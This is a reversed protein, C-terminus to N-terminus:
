MGGGDELDFFLGHLLGAHICTALLPSCPMTDSFISIEIVM